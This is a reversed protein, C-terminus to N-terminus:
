AVILSVKETYKSSFNARFVSFKVNIVYNFLERIGYIILLVSIIIFVAFVLIFIKRLVFFSVPFFNECKEVGRRM